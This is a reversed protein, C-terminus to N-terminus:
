ANAIVHINLQSSFIFKHMCRVPCSEQYNLKREFCLEALETVTSSIGLDKIPLVM